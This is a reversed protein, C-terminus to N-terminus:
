NERLVEREYEMELDHKHKKEEEALEAFLILKDSDPETAALDIYLDYAKQENKMAFIFVDQLSSEETLESAVLYDSVHLDPIEGFTALLDSGTEIFNKLKQEHGREMLAMSNLMQRTGHDKAIEAYKEYLEAAKVEQEIAFQICDEILTAM